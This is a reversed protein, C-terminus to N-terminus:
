FFTRLCPSRTLSTSNRAARGFLGIITRCVFLVCRSQQTLSFSSFIFFYKSAWIFTNRLLNCRSLSWTLDLILSLTVINTCFAIEYGLRGYVYIHGHFPKGPNTHADLHIDLRCEICRCWRKITREFTREWRSAWEGKTEKILQRIFLPVCADM